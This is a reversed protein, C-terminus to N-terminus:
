QWRWTMDGYLDVTVKVDMNTAGGNRLLLWWDATASPVYVYDVTMQQLAENVNQTGGNAHGHINWDLTATPAEVHIVARDAPGGHMIGEVLEGPRLPQTATVVERPPPADIAPDADAPLEADAAPSATDGCAALAICIGLAKM